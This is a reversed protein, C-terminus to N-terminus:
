YLESTAAAFASNSCEFALGFSGSPIVVKPGESRSFNGQFLAAAMIGPRIAECVHFLLTRRLQTHGGRSTINISKEQTPMPLQSLVCLLDVVILEQSDANEESFGANQSPLSPLFSHIYHFLTVDPLRRRSRTVDATTPYAEVETSVFTGSHKHLQNPVRPSRWHKLLPCGHTGCQLDFSGTLTCGVFHPDAGDTMASNILKKTCSSTVIAFAHDSPPGLCTM